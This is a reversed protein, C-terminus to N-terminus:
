VCYKCSENEKLYSCVFVKHKLEVLLVWDFCDIESFFELKQKEPGVLVPLNAAAM